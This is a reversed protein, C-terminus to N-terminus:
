ERRKRADKMRMTLISNDKGVAANDADPESPIMEARAMPEPCGADANVAFNGSEGWDELDSIM